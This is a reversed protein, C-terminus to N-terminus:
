SREGESSAGPDEPTVAWIFSAEEEGANEMAYRRGPPFYFCERPGLVLEGSDSGSWSIRLSGSCMYYAEHTRDDVEWAVMETGPRMWGLGLVLQSGHSESNVAVAVTFGGDASDTRIRMESPVVRGPQISRGAESRECAGM